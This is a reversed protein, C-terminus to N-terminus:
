EQLKEKIQKYLEDKSQNSKIGLQQALQQLERYNEPMGKMAKKKVEKTEDVETYIGTRYNYRRKM